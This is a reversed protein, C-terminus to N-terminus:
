LVLTEQSIYTFKYKFKINNYIDMSNVNLKKELKKCIKYLTNLNILCLKRHIDTNINYGFLCNRKTFLFRDIAKCESNIRREWKNKIYKSDYKILKKWKKYSLCKNRISNNFESLQEGLIKSYKM